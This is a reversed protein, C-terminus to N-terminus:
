EAQTMLPASLAGSCFISENFFAERSEAKTEIEPTGEDHEEEDPGNLENLDTTSPWILALDEM